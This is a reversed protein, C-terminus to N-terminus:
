LLPQTPLLVHRMGGLAKRENGSNYIEAYAITFGPLTQQVQQEVTQWTKDYVEFSDSCYLNDLEQLQTLIHQM